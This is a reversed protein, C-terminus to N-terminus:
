CQIYLATTNELTSDVNALARTKKGFFCFIRHENLASRVEKNQRVDAVGSQIADNLAAQIKRAKNQNGISFLYTANTELRTIEKIVVNIDERSKVPQDRGLQVVPMSIMELLEKPRIMPYMTYNLVFTAFVNAIFGGHSPFPEKRTGPLVSQLIIDEFSAFDQHNSKCYSAYNYFILWFELPNVAVYGKNKFLYEDKYGDLVPGRESGIVFRECVIELVECIEPTRQLALQLKNFLEKQTEQHMFYQAAIAEERIETWSGMIISDFEHANGLGTESDLVQQMLRDLTLYITM